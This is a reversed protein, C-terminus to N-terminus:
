EDKKWGILKMLREAGRIGAQRMDEESRNAFNGGMDPNMNLGLKQAEEVTRKKLGKGVYNEEM